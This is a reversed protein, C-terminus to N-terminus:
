VANLALSTIIIICHYEKVMYSMQFLQESRWEVGRCQETRGQGSRVQGERCQGTMGQGERCHVAGCRVFEEPKRWFLVDCHGSFASDSQHASSYLDCTREARHISATILEM